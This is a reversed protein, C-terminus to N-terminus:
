LRMRALPIGVIGTILEEELGIHGFPGPLLELLFADHRGPYSHRFHSHDIVLLFM